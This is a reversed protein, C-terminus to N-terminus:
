QRSHVLIRHGVYKNCMYDLELFTSKLIVHYWIDLTQTKMCEVFVCVCECIYIYFM